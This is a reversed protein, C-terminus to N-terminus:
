RRTNIACICVVAQLETEPQLIVGVHEQTETLKDASVM